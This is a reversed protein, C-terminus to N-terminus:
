FDEPLVDGDALARAFRDIRDLDHSVGLIEIAARMERTQTDLARDLRELTAEDHVQVGSWGCNTCCLEVVYRWHGAVGLIDMPVVFPEDCTSCVDVADAPPILPGRLDTM